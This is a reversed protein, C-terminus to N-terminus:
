ARRGTSTRGADAEYKLRSFERAFATLEEWSSVRHVHWGQEDRARLIQKSGTFNKGALQDIEAFLNLVLTGGGGARALSQRAIAFGDAGREDRDFMTSVGDDSIV